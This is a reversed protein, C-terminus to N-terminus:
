LDRPAPPPSECHICQNGAPCRDEGPVGDAGNLAESHSDLCSQCPRSVIARISRRRRRAATM